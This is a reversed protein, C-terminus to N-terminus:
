GHTNRSAAGVSLPPTPKGLYLPDLKAIEEAVADATDILQTDTHRSTLFFRLRAQDEEVAPYLIPQVNISRHALAQSLQLCHYSNPVIAPIVATGNSMGTNVGREKLLRLFMQSRDQLRDVLEPHAELEAIAAVAAAANAPSIGVSYVFGPNTYKLFEVLVHSGAIYGGCSALSKSLTGMWMDVDSRVVDFYEGIGRGTKGIVGLSHAEDVFLLTKHKKKIEIIEDLPAIDGDMSYVGEVAILVRRAHPRLQTLLRDLEEVDNHAFPRRRCGALKAGGLISDHALSDHVILDGAALLHGIVSVNTAHGGVMIISDECGLFDSVAKELQGHLPKEGSAVRSASVSTGYRQVAEAAARSVVEAGSLGLYNYSSFNVFEKGEILSTENTVREHVNFYPNQIGMSEAMQLRQRLELVEPFQNVNYSDSTVPKVSSKGNSGQTTTPLQEFLEAHIDRFQAILGGQSDRLDIHGTILSGQVTELNAACTMTEDHPVSALLRFDGISVPLAVKQHKTHTFFGCLQLCSDFTRIDVEGCPIVSSARLQGVVHGDGMHVVKTIGRLSDGHFTHHAYFDAISLDPAVGDPVVCAALASEVREARGRYALMRRGAKEAAFSIEIDASDVSEGRWQGRANVFLYVAEGHLRVGECLEFQTLAIPRGAIGLRRAAEVAVDMAAAMPLVPVGAIRHDMLYPHTQRSIRLCQEVGRESVPPDAALLVEGAPADSLAARLEAVVHALGTADDLFPVGSGKMQKKVADPLTAVMGTGEWPPLDIAVARVDAREQTMSGCLQGLLHNAASYDVQQANGFRGAWSSYVLFARLPDKRTARWLALAGGVKTDFVRAFSKNDKREVPSDALVGATHVVIEIPGFRERADALASELAAFDSVDCPTYIAEGGAARVEAMLQGVRNSMESRGLLILRARLRHALELALKAGLGRGGGSIAVVSHDRLVAGNTHQPLEAATVTAVHREGDAFSVDVECDGSLIEAALQKAMTDATASAELKISKCQTQTWERALSKCLGGLGSAALSTSALVFGRLGSGSAAVHRALEFARLVPKRVDDVSSWHLVEGIARLDIVAAARAFKEASGNSGIVVAQVVEVGLGSDALRKALAAAVGMADEIIVVTGAWPSEAFPAANRPLERPAWRVAYRSVEAPDIEAALENKSDRQYVTAIYDVVDGLNADNVFLSRPLNDVGVFSEAALASLEAAMLSDFGLDGGLRHELKIKEPPFASVKSIMELVQREVIRPASDVTQSDGQAVVEPLHLGHAAILDNQKRMVDAQTQMLEMQQRFLTVLQGDESGGPHSNGMPLAKTASGVRGAASRLSFQPLSELETAQAFIDLRRTDLPSPPLSTLRADDAFLSAMSWEETAGATWLQGIAELSTVCQDVTTSTLAVLTHDAASEPGLTSRIMHLLADGAGVQVWIRAGADRAAQVGAIFDVPSTAHRTFISRVTDTGTPYPGPDICSIVTTRGEHLPIRHITPALKVTVGSMLPSHFAHSVQLRTARLGEEEASVLVQDVAETTGSVVSQRNHNFNAVVVDAHKEALKAVTKRDAAIAAMAGPDDLTLSRMVRGREAVLTMADHSELLGGDAAAVFEGLSHGLSIAASVGLSRLFDSLALGLAALVPQCIDTRTLATLAGSTDGNTIPPYLYSLLPRPLADDCTAALDQLRTRFSTFRDYLDRCLFLAQAGQGPFVFAVKNPGDSNDAFSFFLGNADRGGVVDAVRQLKERAENHSSAVFAARAKNVRRATALTYALDALPVGAGVEQMHEALNNAHAVLREPTPASVVFLQAQEPLNTSAQIDQAVVVSVRPARPPPAEELVAHVNTGGFGFSSVGARRPVSKREAWDREETPVYIGTGDLELDARLNCFNSQKPIRRHALALAAKIISAAGAASMTHGINAKISGLALNVPGQANDAVFRKVSAAETADGVRTGTGHAEIFDVTDPSLDADQYARELALEQAKQRPTMPGEGRGDNNIGIGRIVAIIRDGDRQADELRKLVVAGVGEGFLFGDAAQDFPRCADGKSVAGIRSFAVLNDPTMTIYTGGAIAMRCLGNRLHWVAENLAVLASSCAADISFSPGGLDFAQSVCAAAMNHMQGVMTYAGMAPMDEVLFERAAEIGPPVRGFKGDFVQQMRLRLTAYSKHESVSIGVYVGTKEQDYARTAYGADELAARSVDLFLRQQPDMLKARRPPLAFPEPAFDFVNDVTAIKKAYTTGLTRGNEHFILEHNWREEPVARAFTRGATVNEWLAQVNPSGPFRCGMGVIAIRGSM